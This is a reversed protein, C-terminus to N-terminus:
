IQLGAVSLVLFGQPHILSREPLAWQTLSTVLAPSQPTPPLLFYSGPVSPHFLLPPRSILSAPAACLSAISAFSRSWYPRVYSKINLVMDNHKTILDNSVKQPVSGLAAHHFHAPLLGQPLPPMPLTPFSWGLLKTYLATAAALSFGTSLSPSTSLAWRHTHRCLM